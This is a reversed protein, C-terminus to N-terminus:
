PTVVARTESAATVQGLANRQKWRYYLVRQSLAPITVTCGAACPVGAYTESQAFYFPSGQNVGSSAAVCAEQRSTCYFQGAEGNEGYGFEVIARTGAGGQPPIRVEIPIFTNRAISDSAPYPPLVTVIDEHRIGDLWRVQSFFESAANREIGILNEQSRSVDVLLGITLPLDTERAFYKITQPKGDELVTFDTQELNPILAGRKDRVSALVSVVDVNVRIVSDDDV